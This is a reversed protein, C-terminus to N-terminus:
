SKTVPLYLLRTECEWGSSDIYSTRNKDYREIPMEHWRGFDPMDREPRRHRIQAATPVWKVPKGQPQEAYLPAINRELDNIISWISVNEVGQRLMARYSDAYALVPNAVPEGQPQAIAPKSNIDSDRYFNDAGDASDLVTSPSEVYLDEKLNSLLERLENIAHGQEQVFGNCATNLLDYPVLAMPKAPGDLLDRLDDVVKQGGTTRFVNVCARELLERPALVDDIIQNNM